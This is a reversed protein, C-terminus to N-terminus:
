LTIPFLLRIFSGLPCDRSVRTCCHPSQNASVKPIHKVVVNVCWQFLTRSNFDNINEKAKFCCWNINITCCFYIGPLDLSLVVIKTRKVSESYSWKGSIWATKGKKKKKFKSEDWKFHLSLSIIREDGSESSLQGYYGFISWAPTLVLISSRYGMPTAPVWISSVDMKQQKWRLCSM